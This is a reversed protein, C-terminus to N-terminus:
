PQADLQIKCSMSPESCAREGTERQPKTTTAGRAARLAGEPLRRELSYILVVAGVMLPALLLWLAQPNATLMSEALTPTITAAGAISLQYIALYRGQLGIPAAAAALASSTPAYIIEALTYVIMCACLYLPLTTPSLLPAAAFLLFSLGWGLGGAAMSRTRRWSAVVRVVPIQLAVIMGTNLAFLLGVIWAPAHVAVILYPPLAVELVVVSIWLIANVGVLGLFPHDRLVTRYTGRQAQMAGPARHVRILFLLAAAVAFTLGNLGVIWRYGAVGGAAVIVGALLAGAGAGANFAMRVLGYWRDREESPALDVVLAQNATGGGSRGVALFLAVSLFGAFSHVSLYAAFGAAALLNTAVAVSRADFRDILRGALPTVVLGAGTAVSLGLGVLPLALGVVQHFYLVSFPVFLGYGLANILVVAFYPGGNGLERPLKVRFTRFRFCATLWLKYM